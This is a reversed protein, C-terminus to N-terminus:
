LQLGTGGCTCSVYWVCCDVINLSMLIYECDRGAHIICANYQMCVGVTWINVIAGRTFSVHTYQMCVGVTWINVIAGRTFSVHTYEM